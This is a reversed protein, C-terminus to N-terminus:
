ILALSINAASLAPVHAAGVAVDDLNAVVSVMAESSITQPLSLNYTGTGGTGTGLSAITVGDPMGAAVVTQGVALTGSAVASVTMVTTAVSATFKAAPAVTSGLKISVIQAWPGLAAIGSYYRSAYVTSGIRARSGGDAGAFALLIAAQIQTLANSPVATTNAISVLFVFTAAAATQFTVSYSPLPAVYGSNTDYVTETTNATAYACGPAKKSWIAQAVAQPSGGSV